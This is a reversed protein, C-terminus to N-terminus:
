YGIGDDGADIAIIWGSGSGFVVVTKELRIGFGAMVMRQDVEMGTENLPPIRLSLNLSIADSHVDVAAM